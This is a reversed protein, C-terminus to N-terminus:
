TSCFTREKLWNMYITKFQRKEQKATSQYWSRQNLVWIQYLPRQQKLCERAQKSQYTPITIYYANILNVIDTNVLVSHLYICMMSWKMAQTFIKPYCYTCNGLDLYNNRSGSYPKQQMMHNLRKNKEHQSTCTCPM